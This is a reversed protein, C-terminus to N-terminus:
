VGDVPILLENQISPMVGLRLRYLQVTKQFFGLGVDVPEATKSLDAQHQLPLIGCRFYLLGKLPSNCCLVIIFRDAAKFLVTLQRLFLIGNNRLLHFFRKGLDAATCSQMM